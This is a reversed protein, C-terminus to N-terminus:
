VRLKRQGQRHCGALMWRRATAFSSIFHLLQYLDGTAHDSRDGDSWLGGLAHCVTHGTSARHSQPCPTPQAPQKSGHYPERLVGLCMGRQQAGACNAGDGRRPCWIGLL